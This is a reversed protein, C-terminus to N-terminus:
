AFIRDLMSVCALSRRGVSEDLKQLEERTRQLDDALSLAALVAVKLTDVAGTSTAIERMRKDLGACLAQLKEPDGSTRLAYERDYIKARVSSPEPNENM